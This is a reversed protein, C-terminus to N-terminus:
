PRTGPVFHANQFLDGHLECHGFLTIISGGFFNIPFQDSIKIQPKLTYM